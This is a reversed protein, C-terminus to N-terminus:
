STRFLQNEQHVGIVLERPRFIKMVHGSCDSIPEHGVKSGVNLLCIRFLLHFNLLISLYVIWCPRLSDRLQPM